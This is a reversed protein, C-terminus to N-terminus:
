KDRCFKQAISLLYIMDLDSVRSAEDVLVYHFTSLWQQVDGRTQRLKRLLGFTSLIIWGHDGQLGAFM